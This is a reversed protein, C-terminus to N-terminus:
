RQPPPGESEVGGESPAPQLATSPDVDHVTSGDGADTADTINEERALPAPDAETATPGEPQDKTVDDDGQETDREAAALQQAQVATELKDMLTVRAKDGRAREVALAQEALDPNKEVDALVEDINKGATDYQPPGEDSVGYLTVFRRVDEDSSQAIYAAFRDRDEREQHEFDERVRELVQEGAGLSRLREEPFASDAPIGGRPQGRFPSQQQVV